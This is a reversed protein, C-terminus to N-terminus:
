RNSDNKSKLNTTRPPDKSYVTTLILSPEAPTLFGGALAGDPEDGL